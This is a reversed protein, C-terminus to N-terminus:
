EDFLGKEVEDDDLRVRSKHICKDEKFDLISMNYYDCTISQCLNDICDLCDLCEKNEEKLFDDINAQDKHLIIDEM